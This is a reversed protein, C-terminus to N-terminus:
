RIEFGPLTGSEYYGHWPALLLSCRSILTNMKDVSQKFTTESETLAGLIVQSAVRPARPVALLERIPGSHGFFRASKFYAM